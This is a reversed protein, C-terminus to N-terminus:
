NDSLLKKAMMICINEMHQGAISLIYSEFSMKNFIVYHSIEMKEGLLWNFENVDAFTKDGSTSTASRPLVGLVAVHLKLISSKLKSSVTDTKDM